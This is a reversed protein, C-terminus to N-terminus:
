GEQDWTNSSLPKEVMCTILAMIESFGVSPVSIPFQSAHFIVTSMNSIFPCDASETNEVLNSLSSFLETIINMVHPFSFCVSQKSLHVSPKEKVWGAEFLGGEGRNQKRHLSLSELLAVSVLYNRFGLAISFAALM